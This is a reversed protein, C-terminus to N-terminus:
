ESGAALRGPEVCAEFAASWDAGPEDLSRRVARRKRDLESRLRHYEESAELEQRPKQVELRAKKAALSFLQRLQDNYTERMEFREIVRLVARQTVPKVLYDDVPIDVLDFDPEVGTVMVLYGEYGRARLREAVEVGSRGPMERDLLVAQVSDDIVDLAQDGDCATEVTYSDALWHSHLERCDADDDVVAVTTESGWM